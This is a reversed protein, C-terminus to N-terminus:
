KDIHVEEVTTNGHNSYISHIEYKYSLTSSYGNSKETGTIRYTIKIETVNGDEVKISFENFNISMYVEDTNDSYHLKTYEEKLLHLKGYYTDDLKTFFEKKLSFNFFDFTFFRGYFSHEIGYDTYKWIDNDKIYETKIGENEISYLETFDYQSNKQYITHTRNGDKKFEMEFKRTRADGACGGGSACASISQVSILTQSATYSNNDLYTIANYLIQFEEETIDEGQIVDSGSFLLCCSILLIYIFKKIKIM